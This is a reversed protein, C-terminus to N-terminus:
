GPTFHETLLAKGQYDEQGEHEEFTPEQLVKFHTKFKQVQLCKLLCM